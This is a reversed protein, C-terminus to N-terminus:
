RAELAQLQEEAQQRWRPDNSLDLVKRFDTIAEEKEDKLMYANGRNYYAEACDPKIAIAQDYDAIAHDLDGKDAYVNGRNNYAEVYDPKLAIAQDYDAIAHALDGKRAYALGRNYYAEAWDPKLAIAQDYDAIAHNLDGKHTYALGRNHYAMAFDPKIAIAQDYDAMAHDLDGKFAYANGRNLYAGAYDPQLAIAQDCDTIARDLDGKCAYAVGRFSYVVSQDLASVREEVQDLASSFYAIADDWDNATYRAVGVVFLSLYAMEASLRTQLTFSELDAVTATQVLGRLEPGLVPLYRPPRLVEFHVSLPVAKGPLGYWGWIVMAAKRKEGQARAVASGEAETIVLRLPRIEIDDYPETAVRLRERVTETVRYRQPEPGDFDAVLIIVKSPPQAQQYFYYGVGGSTFAFILGLGALAWCRGRPYKWTRRGGKRRRSTRKFAVYACIGCVGGAVVVVIAWIGIGARLWGIIALVAGAALGGIFEPLAERLIKQPEKM